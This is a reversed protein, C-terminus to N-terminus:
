QHHKEGQYVAALGKRERKSFQDLSSHLSPCGMTPETHLLFNLVSHFATDIQFHRSSLAGMSASLPQPPLIGMSAQLLPRPNMGLHDEGDNTCGAVWSRRVAWDTLLWRQYVINYHDGYGDRGM